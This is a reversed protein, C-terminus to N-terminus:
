PEYHFEINKGITDDTSSCADTIDKPKSNYVLATSGVTITKWMQRKTNKVFEACVSNPPVESYLIDYEEMGGSVSVNRKWISKLNSGSGQEFTSPAIDHTMSALDSFDSEFDFTSEIRAKLESLKQAEERAENMKKTDSFRPIVFASLGVGIVIVLMLEIMTFGRKSAKKLNKLINM